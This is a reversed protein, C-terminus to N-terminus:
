RLSMEYERSFDAVYDHFEKPLEEFSKFAENSRSLLWDIDAEGIACIAFQRAVEKLFETM